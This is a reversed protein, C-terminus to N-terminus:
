GLLAGGNVNITEGTIYDSQNSALFAVMNSIDEPSGLRGLPIRELSSQYMRAIAEEETLGDDHMSELIVKGRGEVAMTPISSPCIVNVNIKYPAWELAMIESLAILGRKSVSYHAGNRTARMGQISSINIIKGGQGREKMHKVVAQSVLLAGGINVGLYRNWVDESMELLPHSDLVGPLSSHSHLGANNVLIDIQGFRDIAKVVMQGVEEKVTINATVGLAQGSIAEIEEVLSDLGKWGEQKEWEPYLEPPIYRDNVVIDAGEEALRLAIARGIGKKRATGTVMVVKGKMDYM